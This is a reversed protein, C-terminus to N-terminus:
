AQFTNEVDEDNTLFPLWYANTGAFGTLGGQRTELPASSVLGALLPLALLSFKM